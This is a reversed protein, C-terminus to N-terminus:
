SHQASGARAGAGFPAFARWAAARLPKQAALNKLVRSPNIWFMARLARRAGPRDGDARDLAARHFYDYYVALAASYAKLMAWPSAFRRANPLAHRAFVRRTFRTRRMQVADFRASPPRVRCRVCPAAVFGVPGAAAFRLQWDWDQDGLLALDMAGHRRAAAARVMTAGIQPFYGGLMATLAESESPFREPWPASAQEGDVFVIQGFAADLEPRADFLAIHPRIHGPLWADDDDLFALFEGSAHEMAVNRAAAAGPVATSSYVAGFEDAIRRNEASGANDGVLIEFAVDEGELARISRLAERLMAPRDKTPVVVSVLRAAAM